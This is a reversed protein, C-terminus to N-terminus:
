CHCKVVPWHLQVIRLLIGASRIVYMRVKDSEMNYYGVRDWTALFLHTPQFDKENVFGRRIYSTARDLLAQDTTEYFWVNGSGRTDADAWYQAILQHPNNPFVM